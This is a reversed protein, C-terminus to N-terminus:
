KFTKVKYKKELLALMRESFKGIESSPKAKLGYPHPVKKGKNWIQKLLQPTQKASEVVENIMQKKQEIDMQIERQTQSLKNMEMSITDAKQQIRTTTEQVRKLNPKMDKIAKFLTYGLYILSLVFLAISAYVIIM